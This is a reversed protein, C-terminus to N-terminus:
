SLILEVDPIPKSNAVDLVQYMISFPLSSNIGPQPVSEMEEM